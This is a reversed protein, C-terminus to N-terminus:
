RIFKIIILILLSIVSFFASALIIKISLKESNFMKDAKYNAVQTDVTDLRELIEEIIDRNKKMDDESEYEVVNGIYIVTYEVLSFLANRLYSFQQSFIYCPIKVLEPVLEYQSKKLKEKTEPIIDNIDKIKDVEDLLKRVLRMYQYTIEPAASTKLKIEKRVRRNTKLYNKIVAIGSPIKMNKRKRIVRISRRTDISSLTDVIEEIGFLFHDSGELIDKVDKSLQINTFFFLKTTEEENMTRLIDTTMYPDATEDPRIIDVWVLGTDDNDTQAAWIESRRTLGEDKLTKHLSFGFDQMVDTVFEYLETLKINHLQDYKSVRDTNM